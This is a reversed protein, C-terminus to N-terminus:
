RACVSICRAMPAAPSRRASRSAPTSRLRTAPTPPMAMSRSARPATRAPRTSRTPGCCRAARGRCTCDGAPTIVLGVSPTWNHPPLTYDTDLQWKLSGDLAARAEVRFTDDEGLKVPVLVTNGGTVLPSGYHILLDNGFYHPKLDVPTQWHIQQLPQTAVTSLATHRANGGYTTWAARASPAAVLAL